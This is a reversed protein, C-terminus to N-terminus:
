LSTERKALETRTTSIEKKEKIFCSEVKHLKPGQIKLVEFLSRLKSSKACKDSIARQSTIQNKVEKIETDPQDPQSQNRVRARSEKDKRTPKQDNKSRKAKEIRE